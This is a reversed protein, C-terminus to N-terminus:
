SEPSSFEEGSDGYRNRDPPLSLLGRFSRRGNVDLKALPSNIGIGM